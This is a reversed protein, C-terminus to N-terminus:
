PKLSKEYAKQIIKIYKVEDYVAFVFPNEGFLKRRLGYTDAHKSHAVWSNLSMFAEDTLGREYMAKLKKLKKTFKKVNVARLRRHSQFVVYGLYDVGLEAPFIRAKRPHLELYMSDLFETIKEKIQHLKQKSESLIIFDDVYRLYHRVRLKHKVFYDLENLYINAFLQSTLNGIPIGARRPEEKDASSEVISKILWMTKEDKIKKNIIGILIEHDVSPFYKSIDCKLTFKKKGGGRNYARIFNQLRDVGAHTGKDERCAYSDHIFGKDFIPEIVNCLAHHVVRDKFPVAKILRKKPDNVYFERYEGPKYTQNELEEKIRFLNRELNYTFKLVNRRGLKGKKRAKLYAEYLNEYSCIEKYLNKYTKPM